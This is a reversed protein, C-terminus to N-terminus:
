LTDAAGRCGHAICLHPILRIQLEVQAFPLMVIMDFFVFVGGPLLRLRRFRESPRAETARAVAIVAPMTRAGVPASAASVVPAALAGYSDGAVSPVWLARRSTRRSRGFLSFAMDANTCSAAKHPLAPRSGSQEPMM